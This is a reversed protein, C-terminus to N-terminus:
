LSWKVGLTFIPGTFQISHLRSTDGEYRRSPEDTLNTAEFFATFHNRFRYKITLDLKKFDDVYVDLSDAPLNLRNGEEQTLNRIDVRGGRIGDGALYEGRWALALRVLLGFKEYYVSLNGLNSSQKFM